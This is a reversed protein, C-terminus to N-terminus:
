GQSRQTLERSQGEASSFQWGAASHPPMNADLVRDVVQPSLGAAEEALALADNFYEFCLPRVLNFVPLKWALEKSIATFQEENAFPKALHRFHIQEDIAHAAALEDLHRLECTKGDSPNSLLLLAVLKVPETHWAADRGLLYKEDVKESPQELQLGLKNISAQVLRFRQPGPWVRPVDKHDALVIVDDSVPRWGRLMLGAAFTSKGAGSPGAVAIARGDREMCSAHLPILGRMHMATVLIPGVIFRHLAPDEPTTRLEITVGNRDILALGVKRRFVMLLGPRGWINPAIWRLGRRRRNVPGFAIMVDPCASIDDVRPLDPIESPISFTMGFLRYVYQKRPIAPKSGLSLESRCDSAVAELGAAFLQWNDIKEEAAVNYQFERRVRIRRNRVHWTSRYTFYQNRIFKDQPTKSVAYGPALLLKIEEQYHGPWCALPRAEETPEPARLLSGGPIPLPRPGSPMPFAEGAPIASRAYLEFEASIAFSSRLDRWKSREYRGFGSEGNVGLQLTVLREPGLIEATRAVDRLSVGFVGEAVAVSKGKISGDPLLEAQIRYSLENNKTPLSPIRHVAPQLGGVYLAPKGYAQIPLLGLPAVGHTPDSYIDLEPIFCIMFNMPSVTAIEPLAYSSGYNLAVPVASVGKAALLAVLLAVKDRCDGDRTRLVEEAQRPAIGLRPFGTPASRIEKAVFNHILTAQSVADQATGTILDAADRIQQTVAIQPEWERKFAEALESYNSFTSISFFCVAGETIDANEGISPRSAADSRLWKHVVSAQTSVKTYVLGRSDVSTPMSAPVELQVELDEYAADVAFSQVLQFNNQFHPVDMETTVTVVVSDGPQVDSFVILQIKDYQLKEIDSALPLGDVVDARLDILKVEGTSKRM